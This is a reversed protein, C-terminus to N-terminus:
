QSEKRPGGSPTMFRNAEQNAYAYDWKTMTDPGPIGDPEAGVAEQIEIISMIRDQQLEPCKHTLWRVTCYWTAVAVVIIAMWTIYLLQKESDKAKEDYYENM